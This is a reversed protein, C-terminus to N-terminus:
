LKIYVSEINQEIDFAM